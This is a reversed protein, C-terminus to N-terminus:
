WRKINILAKKAKKREESNLSNVLEEFSWNEYKKESVFDCKNCESAEKIGGKIPHNCELMYYPNPVSNHYKCKKKGYIGM